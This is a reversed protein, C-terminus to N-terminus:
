AALGADLGARALYDRALAYNDNQRPHFDRRLYERIGRGFVRTAIPGDDQGARERAIARMQRRVEALSVGDQRLLTTTGVVWWGILNITAMALGAMRLAYSPNVARLVDFAVHKHEIEEAAHWMLLKQMEPHALALTDRALAGEAMIATYHEAAATAALNLEPPCRKELWDFSFRQYVRLFGDISYGQARLRDADLEHARAHSGEQGFFGRVEARLADDQLQDIYHNVSRVFYREGAPFLLNVGNAIHTAVASGAFWHRPIADARLDLVPKRPRLM